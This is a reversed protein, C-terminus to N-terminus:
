FSGEIQIMTHYLIHYPTERRLNVVAPLFMYKDVILPLNYFPVFGTIVVIHNQRGCAFSLLM